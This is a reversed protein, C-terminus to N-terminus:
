TRTRALTLALALTLTLTLTLEYGGADLEFTQWEGPGLMSHVTDGDRLTRPVARVTLVFPCYSRCDDFNPPKLMDFTCASEPM